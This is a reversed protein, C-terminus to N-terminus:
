VWQGVSTLGQWQPCHWMIDAHGAQSKEAQLLWLRKGLVPLQVSAPTLLEKCFLGM